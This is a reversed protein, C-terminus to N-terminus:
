CLTTGRSALDPALTPARLRSAYRLRHAGAQTRRIKALFKPNSRPTFLTGGYAACQMAYRRKRAKLASVSPSKLPFHPCPRCITKHYDSVARLRTRAPNANARLRAQMRMQTPLYPPRPMTRAAPRTSGTGRRRRHPRAKRTTRAREATAQPRPTAARM